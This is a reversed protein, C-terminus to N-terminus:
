KCFILNQVKKTGLIATYDANKDILLTTHLFYLYCTFIHSKSTVKTVKKSTYDQYIHM